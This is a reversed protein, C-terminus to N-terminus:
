LSQIQTDSYKNSYEMKLQDKLFTAVKQNVDDNFSYMWTVLVHYYVPLMVCRKSSDFEEDEIIYM